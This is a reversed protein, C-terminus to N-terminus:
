EDAMARDFSVAGIDAAFEFEVSVQRQDFEGEFM